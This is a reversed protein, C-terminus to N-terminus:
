LDDYKKKDEIHGELLKIVFEIERCDGYSSGELALRLWTTIDYGSVKLYVDRERELDENLSNIIKKYFEGVFRSTNYDKASKYLEKQKKCINLFDKSFNLMKNAGTDSAFFEKIKHDKISIVYEKYDDQKMRVLLLALPVDLEAAKRLGKDGEYAIAGMCSLANNYNCGKVIYKEYKDYDKKDYFLYMAKDFCDEGSNCNAEKTEAAHAFVPLLFIFVMISLLKKM